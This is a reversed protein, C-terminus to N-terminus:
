WMCTDVVGDLGGITIHRAISKVWRAGLCFLWWKASSIKMHRKTFSFNQIKILMESFNTGVLGTSLVNCHHWLSYSPTEFWWGWSQKRLRKNLRLDFFIDFSWTVPRQAPFEGIVPSNGACLVLLASFTEMQHRRRAESLNQVLRLFTTM